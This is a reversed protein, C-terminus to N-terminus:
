DDQQARRRKLALIVEHMQEASGDNGYDSIQQALSATESKVYEFTRYVRQTMFAPREFFIGAERLSAEMGPSYDDAHNCDFGFWWGTWERLRDAFSLGGHCAVLQTLPAFGEPIDGAGLQLMTVFVNFVGHDDLDAHRKLWGEPAPVLDSYHIGFLPHAAGVGVYGCWTGFDHDRYMVCRLGVAEFSHFWPETEWPFRGTLPDRQDLIM